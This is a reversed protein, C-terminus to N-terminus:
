PPPESSKYTHGRHRRGYRELARVVVDTVSEGREKAEAKAALYIDDPVRFTRPPTHNSRDQPM